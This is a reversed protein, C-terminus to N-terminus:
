DYYQQMAKSFATFIRPIYLKKQVDGPNHRLYVIFLDNTEGPVENIYVDNEILNEVIKASKVGQEIGSASIAIPGGHVVYTGNTAIVPVKSNTNTWEILDKPDIPSPDSKSKQIQEFSTIIIISNPNTVSQIMDQWEDFTLCSATKQVRAYTWGTFSKLQLLHEKSEQSADGVAVIQIPSKFRKEVIQNSLLDDIIQLPLVARVGTVNSARDYGYDKPYQEIKTYVIQISPHELYPKSIIKQTSDGSLILYDPRLTEIVEFAKKSKDIKEDAGVDSKSELYHHYVHYFTRKNFVSKIGQNVSISDHHDPSHSHIVLISPRSFSTWVFFLGIFLVFLVIFIRKISYSMVDDGDNAM